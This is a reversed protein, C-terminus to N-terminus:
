VMRLQDVAAKRSEDEPVEGVSSDAQTNEEHTAVEATEASSEQVAVEEVPCNAAEVTEDLEVVDELLKEESAEHMFPCQGMQPQETAIETDDQVVEEELLTAEVTEFLAEDLKLEAEVDKLLAEESLKQM